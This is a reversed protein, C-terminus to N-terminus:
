MKLYFIHLLHCFFSINVTHKIGITLTKIGIHKIEKVRMCYWSTPTNSNKENKGIFHLPMSFNVLEGLTMCYFDFVLTFGM